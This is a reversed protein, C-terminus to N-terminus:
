MRVRWPTAGVVGLANLMWVLLILAVIVMAINKFPQPLPIMSVVWYLVSGVILIILLTVLISVM